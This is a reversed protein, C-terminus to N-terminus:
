RRERPQGGSVPPLFAVADGDNVAAHMTAFEENLAASISGTFTAAGPYRTTVAHWVDGVTAPAPTDQWWEAQGITDRLRAFVQVKVRM